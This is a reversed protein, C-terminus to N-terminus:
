IIREVLFNNFTTFREKPLNFYGIKLQPFRNKLRKIFNRIGIWSLSKFRIKEKYYLPDINLNRLQVMDVHTYEILNVLAKLEEQTDTFGPFVLLNLSVFKKYKKAIRISTLVDEFKYDKPRFYSYYFEEQASNLTIRFSDIGSKCLEKIYTPISGNTNMHITGRSIRRRINRVVGAILDTYLLPEGECGQGFSIIPERAEKLHNFIVEYIEEEHPTFSIRQHSALCVEEQLSLCGICRANCSNAVPLPAEWRKLFLNKAALCNYNLACNALHKYLRNSAFEKLFIEVQKKVVRDDYFHPLQRIRPDVRKATVYFRGKYFGCATYAWLPLIKKKELFYAPHYLRLYSPPLFAAVAFVKKGKWSSFVEFSNTSPNYGVPLRHPLFFLTSGKPLPILEEEHPLFFNDQIEVAMRLFPHSFIKGEQTAFVLYPRM